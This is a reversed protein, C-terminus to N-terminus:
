EFQREVSKVEGQIVTHLDERLDVTVEREWLESVIRAAEKRPALFKNRNHMILQNNSDAESTVLREKKRIDVNDIGFYTLFENYIASRDEELKDLHYPANTNLIEFKDLLSEDEDEILLPENAQIKEFINKISLVQEPKGKFAYPIKLANQSILKTQKNETLLASYLFIAQESSTFGDFQNRILVGLNEEKAKEMPILYQYLPFERQYGYMAARYRTPDGYPNLHQFTGKVVMEKYFRDNYFAASGYKHLTKELFLPNVTDPLGKWEFMQVVLNLLSRQYFHFWQDGTLQRWYLSSYTAKKAMM